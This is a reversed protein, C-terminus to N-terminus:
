QQFVGQAQQQPHLGAPLIKSHLQILSPLLITLPSFLAGHKDPSHHSHLNIFAPKSGKTQCLSLTHEPNHLSLETSPLIFLLQM